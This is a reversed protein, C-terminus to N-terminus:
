RCENVDNFRSNCFMEALAGAATKDGVTTMKLGCDFLKLGCHSLRTRFYQLWFSIVGSIHIASAISDLGCM